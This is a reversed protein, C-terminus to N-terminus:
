YVMALRPTPAPGLQIPRFYNNQAGLGRPDGLAQGLGIFPMDPGQGCNQFQFVHQYFFTAINHCLIWAWFIKGYTFRLLAYFFNHWFLSRVLTLLFSIYTNCKLITTIPAQAKNPLAPPTFGCRERTLSLTFNRASPLHLPVICCSSM